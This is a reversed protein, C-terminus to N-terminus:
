CDSNISALGCFGASSDHIHFFIIEQQGGDESNCGKRRSGVCKIRSFTIRHQILATEFRVFVLAAAFTL